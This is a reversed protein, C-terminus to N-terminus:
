SSGTLIDEGLGIGPRPVHLPIQLENYWIVDGGEGNVQLGAVFQCIDPYYDDKSPHFIPVSM